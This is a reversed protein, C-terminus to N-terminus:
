ERDLDPREMFEGDEFIDDNYEEDKENDEEEDLDWINDTM